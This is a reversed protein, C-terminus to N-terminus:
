EPTQCASLGVVPVVWEWGDQALGTLKGQRFRTGGNIRQPNSLDLALVRGTGDELEQSPYQGDAIAGTQTNIHFATEQHELLVEATGSSAQSFLIFRRSPAAEWVFLGCDGLALVRPSLADTVQRLPEAAPVSVCGGVM